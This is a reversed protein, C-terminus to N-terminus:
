AIVAAPGPAAAVVHAGAATGEPLPAGIWDVLDVLWGGPGVRSKTEPAEQPESLEEEEQSEGEPDTFLISAAVPPPSLLGARVTQWSSGSSPAEASQPEKQPGKKAYGWPTFAKPPMTNHSLDEVDTGLSFTPPLPLDRDATPRSPPSSLIAGVKKVLSHTPGHTNAIASTIDALGEPTPAVARDSPVNVKKSAVVVPVLLPSAM